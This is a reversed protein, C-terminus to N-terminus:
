VEKEENVFPRYDKPLPPEKVPYPLFFAASPRRFAKAMIMIQRFTPTIKGKEMKLYYEKKVKLRKAVEEISWGASERLWKLVSPEIPIREPKRYM